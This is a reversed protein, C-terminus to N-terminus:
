RYEAIRWQGGERVLGIPDNPMAAFRLEAGDALNGGSAGPVSM